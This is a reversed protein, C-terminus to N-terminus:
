QGARCLKRGKKREGHADKGTGSFCSLRVGVRRSQNM